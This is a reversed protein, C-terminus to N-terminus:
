RSRCSGTCPSGSIRRRGAAGPRDDRACRCGPPASARWCAREASGRGRAPELPAAERRRPRAARGAGPAHGGAGDPRDRLAPGAGRGAREPDKRVVVAAGDSLAIMVSLSHAVVDHMERAIRTRENASALQHTRRGLAALEAEHLRDRRVTVGIGTAIVNALVLVLGTIPRCVRAGGRQRDQKAIEPPMRVAMVLWRRCVALVAALSARVPPSPLNGGRLAAFWM